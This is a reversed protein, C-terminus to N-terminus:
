WFWRSLLWVPTGVVRWRRDASSFVVLCVSCLYWCLNFFLPPPPPLVNDNDTSNQHSILLEPLNRSCDQYNAQGGTPEAKWSWKLGAACSAYLPPPLHQRNGDHLFLQWHMHLYHVIMQITYKSCWQLLDVSLQVQFVAECKWRHCLWCGSNWHYNHKRVEKQLWKKQM